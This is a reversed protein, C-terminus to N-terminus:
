NWVLKWGATKVKKKKVLANVTDQIFKYNPQGLKKWVGERTIKGSHQRITKEVDKNTKLQM